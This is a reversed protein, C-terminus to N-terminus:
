DTRQRKIRVTGEILAKNPMSIIETSTKIVSNITGIQLLEGQQDGISVQQGVEFIKRAYVGYIIGQAVDRTGFGLTIAVALAIAALLAIFAYDM